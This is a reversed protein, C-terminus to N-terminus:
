GFVNKKEKAHFGTCSILLVLILASLALNIYKM